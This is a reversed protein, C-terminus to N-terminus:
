TMSHRLQRVEEATLGTKLAITADDLVDLLNRAIAIAKNKAGRELGVELGEQRGVELGVELGKEMGRKEAKGWEEQRLEEESYEDKM